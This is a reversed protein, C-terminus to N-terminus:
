PKSRDLCFRVSHGRLEELLALGLLVDRDRRGNGQHAHVKAQM